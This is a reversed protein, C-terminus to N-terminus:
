TLVIVRTFVLIALLIGACLRYVAFVRMPKKKLYAVFGNMVFISVIFAVIFGVALAIWYATAMGSYDYELLDKGSSGIMAPIALFFSFEAAIPTSLGAIWGGMITSASRSMGPWMSLVQFLGVKLSQMPTIKDIDKVAHKKKRFMNEIIILLIGGVIFGIIVAEPRFLAKIKSYFLVGVIGCPISGVIVNIGFRFGTKGEKGKTFIYKFFEIVSDKIKKWYLVVVALIAGLQIVVEFMDAFDGKFNIANGVLIMHGTSSVPIFETLGEVIAIIIAKVLLLLDLGM